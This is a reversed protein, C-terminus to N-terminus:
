KFEFLIDLYNKYNLFTSGGPILRGIVISEKLGRLWDVSGEVAAKTLIRKTEQFGSASLFGDKNLSSNTISQLIPAFQPFQYNIKTEKPKFSNCIARVIDFRVIEGILLPSDGSKKIIVSSTMQKSIIELHKSSLFVGQSQYIAQLSHVLLLQFKLLTQMTGRLLGNRLINYNSLIDLLETLEITGDTLPEGIDVFQGIKSAIKTTLPIELNYFPTLLDFFIYENADTILLLDGKKNELFIYKNCIKDLFSVNAMELSSLIKKQNIVPKWTSYDINDKIIVIDNSSTTLFYNNSNLIKELIIM